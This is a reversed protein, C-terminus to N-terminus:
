AAERSFVEKSVQEVAQDLSLGSQQLQKVAVSEEAKTSYLIRSYPDVILRGIFSGNLSKIMFESYVGGVTKITGLLHRTYEDASFRSEKVLLDISEKKQQFMCLYDSNQFVAQAGSSASDSIFDDLNQTGVILSGRFKRLTRALTEMFLAGQKNGKNESLLDWAEDFIILSMLGQKFNKTIQNTILVILLQVIVSQLDKKTKLEMLETVVLPSNFDVNGKGNFFKGYIGKKSYIELRLAMSDTLESKQELLWEYLDNIESNQQKKNWVAQLGKQIWRVEEDSTGKKPAIMLSIVSELMGAIDNFDVAGESDISTFPNFCLNSNHSFEIFQSGENNLVLKEFSRGVDLVYACAGQHLMSEAVSQMFFSKGSGPKGVVSVNFNGDNAQFPSWFFLQGRRGSLLMGGKNGGQYEAVLPMFSVAEKSVTTKSKKFYTMDSSMGCGWSMPMMSILACLQMKKDNILGIGCSRYLSLLRNENLKISEINDFLMVQYSTKVFCDGKALAHRVHQWEELERNLNPLLKSLGAKAQKEINAAKGLAKAKFSNGEISHISYSIVFQCPVQLLDDYQSGILSGIGGLYWEQPYESISYCRLAKKENFIIENEKLDCEQSNHFLQNSISDYPHHISKKYSVDDNSDFLNKIFSILDSADYSITSIGSAKLKLQLESKLERIAIVEEQSLEGTKSWSLILRFDRLVYPMGAYPNYAKDALFKARQNAIQKLSTFKSNALSSNHWQELRHGIKPSAVLMVQLNSGKPLTNTLISELERESTEDIGLVINGELVFGYGGKNYFLGAQDDYDEYPFAECISAWNMEDNAINAFEHKQTSTKFFKDFLNNLM